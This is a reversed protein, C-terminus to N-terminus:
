RVVVVAGTVTRGEISIVYIYIGSAAARGPDWSVSGASSSPDIAVEAVKHGRVDYIRLSGASDRPNDFRFTATDNRGDGNPTVFRNSVGSFGFAAPRSSAAVGLALPLLLLLTKLLGAM